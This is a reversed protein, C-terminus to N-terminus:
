LPDANCKSCSLNFHFEPRKSDYPQVVVEEKEEDVKLALTSDICLKIFGEDESLIFM